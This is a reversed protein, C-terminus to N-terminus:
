HYFLIVGRIVVVAFWMINSITCSMISCKTIHDYIEPEFVVKNLPTLILKNDKYVISYDSINDITITEM